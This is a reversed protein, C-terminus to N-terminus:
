SEIRGPRGQSGLEEILAKLAEDDAYLEIVDPCSVLAAVLASVLQGGQGVRALGEAVYGVVRERSGAVIEIEEGSLLADVVSRAFAHLFATSM